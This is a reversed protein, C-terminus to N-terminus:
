APENVRGNSPGQPNKPNPVGFFLPTVTTSVACSLMLEGPSRKQSPDHGEVVQIDWFTVLHHDSWHTIEGVSRFVLM